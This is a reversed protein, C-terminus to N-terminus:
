LPISGASLFLGCRLAKLWRMVPIVFFLVSPHTYQCQEYLVRMFINSPKLSPVTKALKLTESLRALYLPIQNDEVARKRGCIM